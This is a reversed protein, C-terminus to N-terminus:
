LHCDDMLDGKFLVGIKHRHVVTPNDMAESDSGDGQTKLSRQSSM